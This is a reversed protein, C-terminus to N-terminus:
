LFVLLNKIREVTKLPNQLDLPVLPLEVKDLAGRQRSLHTHFTAMETKEIAYVNKIEYLKAGDEISASESNLFLGELKGTELSILVQILYAYKSCSDCSINLRRYNIGTAALSDLASGLFSIPIGTNFSYTGNNSAQKIEIINNNHCDVTLQSTGFKLYAKVSNEDYNLDMDAHMRGTCFPCMSHYNIVEFLNKFQKM